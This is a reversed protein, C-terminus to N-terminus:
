KKNTVEAQMKSLDNLVMQYVESLLQPNNSYFNFSEDFQKKTINNKKLVDLDLSVSSGALDINNRNIGTMSMSAELLHVDLMVAAMKEKSLVNDPISITPKDSCAVVLLCIFLFSFKKIM